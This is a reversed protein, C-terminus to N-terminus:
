LKLKMLNWTLLFNAKDEPTMKTPDIGELACWEERYELMAAMSSKNGSPTSPNSAGNVIEDETKIKIEPTPTGQPRLYQMDPGPSPSKSTAKRQGTLWDDHQKAHHKASVYIYEDCLAPNPWLHKISSRTEWTRLIKGNIEWKVLLETTPYTREEGKEKPRLLSVSCNYAEGQIGKFEDWKRVFKRGQKEDGYRHDPGFNPTNKKDFPIGARYATSREYKRANPPGFSLIVPTSNGQERWARVEGGDTRGTAERAQAPTFLGADELDENIPLQQRNGSTDTLDIVPADTSGSSSSGFSHGPPGSGAQSAAPIFGMKFGPVNSETTFTVPSGHSTLGSIPGGSDVFLETDPSEEGDVDKMEEDEAKQAQQAEEEVQQLTRGSSDVKAKLQEYQEKNESNEGDRHSKAVEELQRKLEDNQKKTEELKAAAIRSKEKAERRRKDNASGAGKNSASGAM